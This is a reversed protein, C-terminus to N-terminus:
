GIKRIFIADELQLQAICLHTTSLLTLCYNNIKIKNYYDIFNRRLKLKYSLPESLYFHAKQYGM